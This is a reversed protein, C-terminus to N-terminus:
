PEPALREAQLNGEVVIVVKRFGPIRVKHNVTAHSSLCSLRSQQRKRADKLSAVFTHAGRM